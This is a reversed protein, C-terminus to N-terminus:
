RVLIMKKTEVFRGSELRYLYVGSAFVEGEFRVVYNGREQEENVLEVLRQGLLNFVRLRVRVGSPIAYRITTSPNFPNPYNESLSFNEPLREEGVSTTNVASDFSVIPLITDRQPITIRRWNQETESGLRRPKWFRYSLGDGTPYNRSVTYISDNNLDEM